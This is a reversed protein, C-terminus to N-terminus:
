PAAHEGARAEEGRWGDALLALMDLKNWSCIVISEKGFWQAGRQRLRVLRFFAFFRADM